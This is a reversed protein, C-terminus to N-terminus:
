LLLCNKNTSVTGFHYYHLKVVGSCHGCWSDMDAAQYLTSCCLIILYPAKGKMRFYLYSVFATLIMEQFIFQREIHTHTHTRARM